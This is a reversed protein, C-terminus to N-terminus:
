KMYKIVAKLYLIIIYFSFIVKVNVFVKKEKKKHTPKRCTKYKKPINLYLM